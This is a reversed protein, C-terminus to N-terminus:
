SKLLFTSFIVLRLIKYKLRGQIHDFLPAGTEGKLLSKMFNMM